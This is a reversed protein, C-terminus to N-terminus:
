PDATEDRIAWPSYRLTTLLSVRSTWHQVVALTM